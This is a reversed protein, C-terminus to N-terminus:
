TTRPLLTRLCCPRLTLDARRDLTPRTSPPSHQICVKDLFISARPMMEKLRDKVTRMAEEGQSWRHSLFIDYKCGVEMRLPEVEAGDASHRLRRAKVNKRDRWANLGSGVAVVVFSASNLAVLLLGTAGSSLDLTSNTCTADGIFLFASVYTILLQLVAVWAATNCLQSRFPQSQKVWQWAALNSIVGLWIQLRPDPLLNIAGTLVFKYVLVLSETAWFRERYSGVLLAVRERARADGRRFRRSFTLAAFPLGIGYALIGMSAAVAWGSWVGEFCSEVPDDRLVWASVGPSPFCDFIFLPKRALTPYLILFAWTLLKFVRPHALAMRLGPWYLQSSKACQGASFMWMALRRPRKFTAEKSDAHNSDADHQVITQAHEPAEEQTAATAEPSPSPPPSPLPTSSSAESGAKPRVISEKTLRWQVVVLLFLVLVLIIPILLTALLELYFGLRSGHVCEPPLVSFLELNFARDLGEMFRLFVDPWRVGPVRNLAGLCQCYTLLIKALAAVTVLAESVHSALSTRGIAAACRRLCRPPQLYILTLALVVVSVAVIAVVTATAANATSTDTEIAACSLCRRQSRYYGDACQGCLAGLHGDACSADGYRAGGLCAGDSACSYAKTDNPSQM